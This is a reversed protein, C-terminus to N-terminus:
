ANIGIIMTIIGWQHNLVVMVLHEDKTVESAGLTGIELVVLLGHVTVGVGRLRGAARARLGHDRFVPLVGRAVHRFQHGPFVTSGRRRLRPPGHSATTTTSNEPHFNTSTSPSITLDAILPLYRTVLQDGYGHHLKSFITVHSIM